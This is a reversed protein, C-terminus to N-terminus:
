IFETVSVGHMKEPLSNLSLLFRGLVVRHNGEVIYYDAGMKYFGLHNKHCRSLYYDPNAHLEKLGAWGRKLRGQLGNITRNRHEEEAHTRYDTPLLDLWSYGAYDGHSTGIVANLYVTGTRTSSKREFYVSHDFSALRDSAFSPLGKDEILRHMDSNMM